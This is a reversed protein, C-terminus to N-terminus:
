RGSRGLKGLLILGLVLGAGLMSRKIVREQPTSTNWGGHISSGYEVPQFVNGNTNQIRKGTKFYAEMVKRTIMRTLVPFTGAAFKLLSAPIDTYDGQAPNQAISVMKRAVKQPDMVPPAPKLAVGTYNAAHQVGPTDLFATYIDCIKIGPWSGLEGKLAQSFGRLGFKSATYGVAYPAPFWGGVSINNILVGFGQAKFYPLVAHAGHIYGLLNTNIVQDHVEVPTEDFTGMALVGANNIWIDIEGTYSRAAAALGKVAAADTVDINASVARGGLEECELLVEELTDPRRSALILNAGHRAFEIAAARGVGSSAGTIVVTKGHLNLNRRPQFAPNNM